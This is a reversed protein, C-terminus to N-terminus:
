DWRLDLLFFNSLWLVPIREVNLISLPLNWVTGSARELCVVQSHFPRDTEGKTGDHLWSFPFTHVAFSLLGVSLDLFYVFGYKVPSIWMDIGGSSKCDQFVFYILNHLQRVFWQDFMCERMEGCDTVGSRGHDGM